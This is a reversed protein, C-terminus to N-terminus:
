KTVADGSAAGDQAALIERIVLNVMFM